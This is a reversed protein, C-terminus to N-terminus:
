FTQGKKTLEFTQYIVRSQFDDYGTHHLALNLLTKAMTFENFDKFESLTMLLYNYNYTVYHGIDVLVQWPEVM